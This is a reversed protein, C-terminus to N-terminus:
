MGPAWLYMFRPTPQTMWGPLALVLKRDHQTGPHPSAAYINPKWALPRHYTVLSPNELGTKEACIRAADRLTGIRDILGAELAQGATFVRGDALQRIREADLDPRGAQVVRLFSEYFEDVMQQFLEREQPKLDRFPSGADKNPGSKIAETTMGIKQLTGHLTFMQMLVGISGTVSTRHAIIEDCACAIYYGGSAAVDMFVAVVPKDTRSKFGLIEQYMLDSATVSGGPSNIRLVVAKVRDDAEARHLKELLLSVPHEDQQWLDGTEENVMIGQVDILAIKPPALGKGRLLVREQLARDTPVPTIKYSTPTCGATGLALAAVILALPMAKMGGLRNSRRM